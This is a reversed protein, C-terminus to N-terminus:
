FMRGHVSKWEIKDRGEAHERQSESTALSSGRLDVFAGGRHRLGRGTLRIQIGIVYGIAIWAMHCRSNLAAGVDNKFAMLDFHSLAHEFRGGNTAHEFVADGDFREIVHIVHSEGFGNGSTDLEAGGNWGGGESIAVGAPAKWGHALTIALIDVDRDLGNSFAIMLHARDNGDVIGDTQIEESPLGLEFSNLFARGRDFKALFSRPGDCDRIVAGGNSRINDDCIGQGIGKGRSAIEALGNAVEGRTLGFAHGVGGFCDFFAFKTVAGDGRIRTSWETARTGAGDRTRGDGNDLGTNADALAAWGLSIDEFRDGEIDRDFVGAVCVQFVDADGVDQGLIAGNSVVTAAADAPVGNAPHDGIEGSTGALQDAGLDGGGALSLRGVCDFDEAFVAKLGAVAHGGVPEGDGAHSDGDGIALVGDADTLGGDVADLHAVLTLELGDAASHGHGKVVGDLGGGDGAIGLARDVALGHGEGAGGQLWTLVDVEADGGLAGLDAGPARDHVEAGVEEAIWDDALFRGVNVLSFAEGGAPLSKLQKV